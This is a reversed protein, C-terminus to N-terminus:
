RNTAKRSYLNGYCYRGKKIVQKIINKRHSDLVSGDVFVLRVKGVIMSYGTVKRQEEPYDGTLSVVTGPPYRGYLRCLELWM